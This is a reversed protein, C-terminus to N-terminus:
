HFSNLSHFTYVPNPFLLKRLGKALSMKADKPLSLPFSCVTSFLTKKATYLLTANRRLTCLGQWNWAGARSYHGFVMMCAWGLSRAGRM